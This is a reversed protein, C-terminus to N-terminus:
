NLAISDIVAQANQELATGAGTGYLLNIVILQNDSPFYYIMVITVESGSSTNGSVTAMAATGGGMAVDNAFDSITVNSMGNNAASQSFLDETIDAPSEAVEQLDTVAASTGEGKFAYGAAVEVPQMDAPLAISISGAEYVTLAEAEGGKDTAGCATLALVSGLVLVLALLKKM